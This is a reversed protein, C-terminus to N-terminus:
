IIVLGLNLLTFLLTWMAADICQKMSYTALLYYPKRDFDFAEQPSMQIGNLLHGVESNNEYFKIYCKELFGLNSYMFIKFNLCSIKKISYQPNLYKPHFEVLLKNNMKYFSLLSTRLSLIMLATFISQFINVIKKFIELEMQLYYVITCGILILIIKLSFPTDM